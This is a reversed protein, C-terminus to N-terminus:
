AWQQKIAGFLFSASLQQIQRSDQDPSQDGFDEPNKLM